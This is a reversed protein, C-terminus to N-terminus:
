RKNQSTEDGLQMMLYLVVCFIFSQCKTGNLPINNTCVNAIILLKFHSIVKSNRPKLLNIARFNM